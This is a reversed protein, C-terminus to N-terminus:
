ADGDFDALKMDIYEKELGSSKFFLRAIAM